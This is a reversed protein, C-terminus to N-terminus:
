QKLVEPTRVTKRLKNLLAMIEGSRSIRYGIAEKASETIKAAIEPVFDEWSQEPCFCPELHEVSAEFKGAGPSPEVFVIKVTLDLMDTNASGGGYYGFYLKLVEVMSVAEGLNHFALLAAKFALALQEDTPNDPYGPHLENRHSYLDISIKAM